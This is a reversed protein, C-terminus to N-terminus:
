ECFFCMIFLALAVSYTWNKKYLKEILQFRMAVYGLYFFIFDRCAVHLSFFKLFNENSFYTCFLKFLLLLVSSVIIDVIFSDSIKQSFYKSVSFLVQMEFLCILFWQFEWSGFRFFRIFLFSIAPLLLVMCRKTLFSKLYLGNWKEKKVDVLYGSLFFFLPMHFSYILRYVFSQGFNPQCSEPINWALFHGMVVLFIAFGKLLDIYAIRQMSANKESM